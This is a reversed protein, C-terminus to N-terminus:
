RTIYKRLIVPLDDETFAVCYRCLPFTEDHSSSAFLLYNTGPKLHRSDNIKTNLLYDAVAIAENPPFLVCDNRNVVFNYSNGTDNKYTCLEGDFKVPLTLMCLSESVEAILTDYYGNEKLFAFANKYNSNIEFGFSVSFPGTANGYVSPDLINQSMNENASVDFNFTLAGAFDSTNIEDYSLTILDSKVAELFAPADKGLSIEASSGYTHALLYLHSVNETNLKDFGFLKLKYEPYEYMVSLANANEEESVHYERTVIKGNKLEYRVRMLPYVDDDRTIPIDSIFGSHINRVAAIVNADSSTPYDYRYNVYVAARDIETSDPITTEYGFVNTFAFFSIFAAACAAFALYGKYKSFVKFTKCMLMESAFYVILTIVIATIFIAAASIDSSSFIGFVAIAAGTVLAYKLIPKFIKFAAMEGCAEIRRNEYLLYTIVYLAASGIIYCWIQPRAFINYIDNLSLVKKFLWVIPTNEMIENAIFSDSMCFGYLFTDSVLYITLAALLPVVHIFANIVINATTNGTLIASFVSVSFMIFIIAINIFLWYMVHIASFVTSYASVSMALLIVANIILPALMLTLSAAVSSIYNSRRTVPLSHVFIAQKSSHINNFVLVATVIPVAIAFLLPLLMIGESFLIRYDSKYTFDSPDQVLFMFPVSFFLVVFYLFSGWKFRRLTNKYIGLNFLSTSLIM